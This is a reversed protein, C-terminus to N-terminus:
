YNAVHNHFCQCRQEVVLDIKEEGWVKCFLNTYISQKCIQDTIIHLKKIPEFIIYPFGNYM